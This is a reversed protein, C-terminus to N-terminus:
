SWHWPGKIALTTTPSYLNVFMISGDPSFCAGAPETQIRVRAFDYIEGAPTVGKLFNNVTDSYQDECVIMHGNPTVVINDGYNYTKEDPSEVLLSLLGPDTSEQDTGEFQSPRYQMIQGLKQKGGNTCCFYLTDTAWHVGEGRAFLAAGQDFGRKRLDDQPSEVNDLDIWAAPMPSQLAMHAANWNRTDYQPKDLIALAQLKGGQDLKGPVSPIFRYFLSDGRDETLYVIGTKPDICAAEHNFRGMAKLPKADVMSTANSPIEFVYGHAQNTQSTDKLVSEECTLWSGWPTVGGACNRVTGVLSMFENEVKGTQMNYVLNSTGGPLVHGNTDQAYALTMQTQSLEALNGQKPSLEHNRILVVRADDKYFCGMGDARDPVPLGDSMSDNLRSIVQYSFGKPLDLLGNPDPVLEGYGFLKNSAPTKHKSPGALVNKALGGFALGVMLQNFQRREM